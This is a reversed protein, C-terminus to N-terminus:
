KLIIKREASCDKLHQRDKLGESWLRAQIDRSEWMQQM